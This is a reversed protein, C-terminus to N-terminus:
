LVVFCFCDVFVGFSGCCLSLDWFDFVLDFLDVTDSVVLFCCILCDCVYLLLCTNSELTAMYKRRHISGQDEGRQGRARQPSRGWAKAITANRSLVRYRHIRQMYMTCIRQTYLPERPEYVM